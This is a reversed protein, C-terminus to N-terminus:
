SRKIHMIRLLGSKVAQTYETRKHKDLQRRSARKRKCLEQKALEM